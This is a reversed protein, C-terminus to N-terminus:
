LFELARDANCLPIPLDVSDEQGYEVADKLIDYQHPDLDAGQGILDHLDTM